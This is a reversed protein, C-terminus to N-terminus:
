PLKVPPVREDLLAYTFQNGRRPGSCIIGELEAKMMLASLRISSAIIKKQKLAAQLETRLLYKGGDLTKACSIM